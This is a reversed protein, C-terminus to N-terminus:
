GLVAEKKTKGSPVAPMAELGALEDSMDEEAAVAVPQKPEVVPQRPVDPLVIDGDQFRLSDVIEYLFYM